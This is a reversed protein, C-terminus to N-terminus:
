KTLFYTVSPELRQAVTMIDEKTVANIKDIVTQIDEDGDFLMQGFAWSIMAIQSDNMSKFRTVLNVKADHIEEETIEGIRMDEIEKLICEKTLLCNDNEIGASVIMAGKHKIFQSRITYALSKKERVNCFLKSSASGGLITSYMTMSYFDHKASHGRLKYGLVLKGQIVEKHEVVSNSNKVDPARLYDGLSEFAGFAKDQARWNLFNRDVKSFYNTFEKSIENEDFKGSVYIHFEADYLVDLYHNYLVRENIKDLDEIYGYKYLGYPENKYMEEISREMAYSAKDNIKANIIEKLTEKEQDVYEKNFAGDKSIPNLLLECLLDIGDKLLKSNDLTYEDSIMDMVFQTNTIDGIKDIGTDLSAGYMEELKISIDKMTPYKKTGRRLVLPLLANKTVDERNLRSMMNICIYNTKFRDTKMCHLFIGDMLKIEKREM